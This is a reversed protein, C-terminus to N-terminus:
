FSRTVGLTFGTQQYGMNNINSTRKNWIVGATPTFGYFDLHRNLLRFSASYLVDYRTDFGFMGDNIYLRPGQYNVWTVSPELYVSFGLPLDTGAGVGLQWSLNDSMKLQTKQYAVNNILAFYTTSNLFYTLKTLVSNTRGDMFDIGPYLYNNERYSYTVGLRFKRSLDKEFAADPGYAYLFDKGGFWTQAGTFYVGAQGRNLLYMPGASGYVQQNDFERGPYENFAAGAETKFRWNGGLKLFYQAAAYGTLGVGSEKPPLDRCLPEGFFLLCEQAAGSVANINTEPNVGLSFYFYLTKRERLRYLYYFINQQVQPPLDPAALARRFHFQAKFDNDNEFYARALELRVRTLSPNGVLIHRFVFIATRYDKRQMSIMGLLFEAQTKDESDLRPYVATILDQADQLRGDNLMTEAQELATPLAFGETQARLACFATM